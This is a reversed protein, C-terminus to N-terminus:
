TNFNRERERQAMNAVLIKLTRMRCLIALKYKLQERRIKNGATNMWEIRQVRSLFFNTRRLMTWTHMHRYTKWLVKEFGVKWNQLLSKMKRRWNSNACLISGSAVRGAVSSPVATLSCVVVRWLITLLAFLLYWVSLAEINNYYFNKCCKTWNTNTHTHQACNWAFICWECGTFQIARDIKLM